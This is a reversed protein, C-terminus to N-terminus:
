CKPVEKTVVKIFDGYGAEMDSLGKELVRLILNLEANKGGEQIRPFYVKLFGGDNENVEHVMKEDLFSDISNFTNIALISVAACVIDSGEEAFGSHGRMDFGCIDGSENKYICVNIM